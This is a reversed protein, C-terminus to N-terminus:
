SLRQSACVATTGAMRRLSDRCSKFQRDDGVTASRPADASVRWFRANVTVGFASVWAWRQVEGM